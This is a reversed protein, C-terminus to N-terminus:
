IFAGCLYRKIKLICLGHWYIGKLNYAEHCFQLAPKYINEKELLSVDALIELNILANSLSVECLHAAHAVL